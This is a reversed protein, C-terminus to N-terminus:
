MIQGILSWLPFPFISHNIRVIFSRSRVFLCIMRLLSLDPNDSIRYERLILLFFSPFDGNSFCMPLSGFVTFDLTTPFNRSKEAWSECSSNWGESKWSSVSEVISTRSRVFPELNSGVKALFVPFTISSVVCVIAISGSFAFCGFIKELLSIALGEDSCFFTSLFAAFLAVILSVELELSDSCDACLFPFVCFCPVVFVGSNAM